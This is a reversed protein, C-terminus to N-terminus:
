EHKWRQIDVDVAFYIVTGSPLGLQRATNVAISADAFGQKNFYSEEYGGDEYM